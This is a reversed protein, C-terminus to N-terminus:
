AESLSVVLCNTQKEDMRRWLESYRVGEANFLGSVSFISNHEIYVSNKHGDREYEMIM